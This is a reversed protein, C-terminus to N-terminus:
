IKIRKVMENIWIPAFPSTCGKSVPYDRYVGLKEGIFLARQRFAELHIGIQALTMNMTWKTEPAAHAMETEIRQLLYEVDVSGTSSVIRDATLSWAMRAVMPHSDTMWKLRLNESEPHQKLIYAHLWDIVQVFSESRVMQEFDSATLRSSEMILIALRRADSNGTEWLQLALSHNTKIKKALTRIDGLKVGFQVPGAGFRINQLRVKESGLAELQAMTAELKM